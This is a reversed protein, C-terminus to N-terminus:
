TRMARTSFSCRMRWAARLRRRKRSVAGSFNCLTTGRAFRRQDAACIPTKPEQPREMTAGRFAPRAPSPVTPEATTRSSACCRSTSACRQPRAMSTTATVARSGARPARGRRYLAASPRRDPPARSRGRCRRRRRASRRRPRGPWARPRPPAQRAALRDDGGVLRQEGLVADLEGREGLLVADREIELGRHAARDRDDLGQALPEGAVGDRADVADEVAGAVVDEGAHLLLPQREGLTELLGLPEAIGLGVRGEVDVAEVGGM